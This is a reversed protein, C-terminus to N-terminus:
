KNQDRHQLFRSCEVSTQIGSVLNQGKIACILKFVEFVDEFNLVSGEAEPDTRGCIGIQAIRRTGIQYKYMRNM